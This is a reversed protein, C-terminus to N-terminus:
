QLAAALPGLLERLHGLVAARPAQHDLTRVVAILRFLVPKAAPPLSPNQAALAFRQRATDEAATLARDQAELAQSGAARLEHVLAHLELSHVLDGAAMGLLLAATQETSGSTAALARQGIDRAWAIAGAHDRPRMPPPGPLEAGLLTVAMLERITDDDVTGDRGRLRAAAFRSVAVSPMLGLRFASELKM